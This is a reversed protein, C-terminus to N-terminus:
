QQARWKEGSPTYIWETLRGDLRYRQMERGVIKGIPVGFKELRGM